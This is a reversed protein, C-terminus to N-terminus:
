AKKGKKGSKKPKKKKAAPQKEISPVAIAATVVPSPASAPQLARTQYELPNKATITDMYEVRKVKLLLRAQRDPIEKEDGLRHPGYNRLFKVKQM